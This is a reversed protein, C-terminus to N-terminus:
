WEGETLLSAINRALDEAALPVAQRETSALDPTVRLTTHGVVDRDLLVRGNRERATVRATIRLRYDRPTLTDEPDFSIESRDYDLVTGSVVIDGADHTNLRYTGEQQLQRRLSTTVANGVRPEFVRSSFPNVQVSRAGATQGSVPGVRYGACGATLVAMSLVLSKM